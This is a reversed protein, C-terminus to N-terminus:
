VIMRYFGPTEIERDCGCPKTRYAVSLCVSLRVSPCEYNRYLGVRYASRATAGLVAGSNKPDILIKHSPPCNSVGYIEVHKRRLHPLLYRQIPLRLRLHRAATPTMMQRLFAAGSVDRRRGWVTSSCWAFMAKGVGRRIDDSQIIIGRKCSWAFMFCIHLM